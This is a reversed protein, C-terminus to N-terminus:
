VKSVMIANAKLVKLIKIKQFHCFIVSEASKKKVCFHARSKEKFIVEFAGVKEYVAARAYTAQFQMEYKTNFFCLSDTASERHLFYGLNLAKRSDSCAVTELISSRM